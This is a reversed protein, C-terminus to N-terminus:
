GRTWLVSRDRRLQRDRRRKNDIIEHVDCREGVLDFFQLSKKIQRHMSNSSINKKSSCGLYTQHDVDWRRAKM